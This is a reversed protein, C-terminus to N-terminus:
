IGVQEIRETQRCKIWLVTRNRERLQKGKMSEAGKEREATEEVFRNEVKQRKSDYKERM